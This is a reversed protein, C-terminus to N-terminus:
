PSRTSPRESITNRGTRSSGSCRSCSPRTTPSRWGSPVERARLRQASSSLALGGAGDTVCRRGGTKPMPWSAQAARIERELLGRLRAPDSEAAVVSTVRPTVQLLVARIRQGIEALRAEALHRSILGQMWEHLELAAKEAAVLSRKQYGEDEVRPASAGRARCCHRMRARGLQGRQRSESKKTGMSPRGGAPFFVAQRPAPGAAHGHATSCVKVLPM